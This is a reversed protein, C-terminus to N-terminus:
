SACWILSLGLLCCGSSAVDGNVWGVKPSLSVRMYQQLTSKKDCSELSLRCFNTLKTLGLGTFETVGDLPLVAWNCQLIFNEAAQDTAFHLLIGTTAPMIIAWSLYSHILMLTHNTRKNSSTAYTDMVYLQRRLYNWYESWSYHAQLRCVVTLAHTRSLLFFPFCAPPLFSLLPHISSHSCPISQISSPGITM